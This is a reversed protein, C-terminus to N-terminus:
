RATGAVLIMGVLPGSISPGPTTSLIELCAGNRTTSVIVIGADVPQEPGCPKAMPGRWSIWSPQPPPPGFEIMISSRDPGVAVTMAVCAFSPPASSTQYLGPSLENKMAREPAPLSPTQSAPPLSDLAGCASASTVVVMPDWTTAASM